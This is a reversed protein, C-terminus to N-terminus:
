NPAVVLFKPAETLPVAGDEAVLDNQLSQVGGFRGRDASRLM